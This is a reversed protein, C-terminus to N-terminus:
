PNLTCEIQHDGVTVVDGPKLKSAHHRRGNVLIGNTSSLDEVFCAKDTAVFRCHQRSVFMSPLCIDAEQARGVV